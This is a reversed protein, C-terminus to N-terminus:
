PTPSPTPTMTPTVSPSPSPYPDCADLSEFVTIVCDLAIGATHDAFREYFPLATVPITVDLNNWLEPFTRIGYKLYSLFRRAQLSMDSVCDHENRVTNNLIDAFIISLQYETTNDTYNISQPVVFMYPYNVSDGSINQAFDVLNGVGFSNLIPSQIQFQELYYLVKHYTIDQNM